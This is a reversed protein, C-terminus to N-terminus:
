SSNHLLATVTFVTVTETLACVPMKISAFTELVYIEKSRIVNAILQTWFGLDPYLYVEEKKARISVSFAARQLTINNLHLTNTIIIVDPSKVHDKPQTCVHM